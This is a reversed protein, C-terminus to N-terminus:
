WNWDHIAVRWSARVFENVVVTRSCDICHQFSNRISQISRIRYNCTRIHLDYSIYRILGYLVNSGVLFTATQLTTNNYRAHRSVEVNGAMTRMRVNERRLNVNRM